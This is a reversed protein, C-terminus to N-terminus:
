DIAYCDAAHDGDYQNCELCHEDQPASGGTTQLHKPGYVHIGGAPNEQITLGYDTIFSETDFNRTLPEDTIVHRAYDQITDYDGLHTYQGTDWEHLGTILQRRIRPILLDIGCDHQAALLPVLRRTFTTLIADINANHQDILINVHKSM